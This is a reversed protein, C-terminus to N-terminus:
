PLSVASKAERDEEELEEPSKLNETPNAAAMARTADFPKFRYGTTYNLSNTM